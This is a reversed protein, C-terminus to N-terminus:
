LMPKWKKEEILICSLFVSLVLHQCVVYLLSSEYQQPYLFEIVIKTFFFQCYKEVFDFMCEMELQIGLLFLFKDM